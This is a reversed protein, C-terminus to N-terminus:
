KFLDPLLRRGERVIVSARENIFKEFDTYYEKETPM